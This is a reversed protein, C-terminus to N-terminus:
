IGEIWVIQHNVGSSSPLSSTLLVRGPGTQAAAAAVAAVAAETNTPNSPYIKPICYQLLWGDGMILIFLYITISIISITQLLIM